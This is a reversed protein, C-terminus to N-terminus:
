RGTERKKTPDPLLGENRLSQVLVRRIYGARSDMTIGCLRDLAHGIDGELNIGVVIPPHTNKATM